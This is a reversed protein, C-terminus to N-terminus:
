KIMEELIIGPYVNRLTKWISDEYNWLLTKGGLNIVQKKTVSGWEKPEKIHLQIALKDLFDKQNLKIKWFSKTASSM